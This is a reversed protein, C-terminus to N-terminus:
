STSDNAAPQPPETSRIYAWDADPCTNECPVRGGSERECAIALEAPMSGLSLRKKLYNHTTGCRRAFLEREPLEISKLYARLAEMLRLM